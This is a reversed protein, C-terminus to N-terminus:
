MIKIVLLYLDENSTNIWTRNENPDVEICANCFIEKTEEEIVITGKGQLVYFIVKQPNKHKDIKENPKLVINILEIKDSSYMKRAFINLPIKEANTPYIINM